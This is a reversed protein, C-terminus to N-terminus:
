NSFLCRWSQTVETVSVAKSAVSSNRLSTRPTCTRHLMLSVLCQVLNDFDTNIILYFHNKIKKSKAKSPTTLTNHTGHEIHIVDGTVLKTVEDPKSDDSFHVEGICDRDTWCVVMSRFINWCVRSSTRSLQALTIHPSPCASPLSVSLQWYTTLNTLRSAKM